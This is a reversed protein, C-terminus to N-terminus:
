LALGLDGGGDFYLFKLQRIHEVSIMHLHEEIMIKDFLQIGDEVQPIFRCRCRDARVFLEHLHAILATSRHILGHIELEYVVNPVSDEQDM